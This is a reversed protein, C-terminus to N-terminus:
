DNLSPPNYGVNLQHDLNKKYVNWKIKEKEGCVGKEGTKVREEIVM